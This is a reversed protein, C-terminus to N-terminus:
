RWYCIGFCRIWVFVCGGVMKIFLVVVLIKLISCLIVIKLKLMMLFGCLVLEM